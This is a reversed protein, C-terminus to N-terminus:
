KEIEKYDYFKQNKVIRKIEKIDFGNELLNNIFQAEHVKPEKKYETYTPVGYFDMLSWIYNEIDDRTYKSERIMKRLKIKQYEKMSLWLIM